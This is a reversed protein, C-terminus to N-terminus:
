IGVYICESPLDKSLHEKKLKILKPCCLATSGMLELKGKRIAFLQFQLVDDRSAEIQFYPQNWEPKSDHITQSILQGAKGGTVRLQL